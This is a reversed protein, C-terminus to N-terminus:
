SLGNPTAVTVTVMKYILLSLCLSTLYSEWPSVTFNYYHPLDWSRLKKKKINLRLSVQESAEKVRMLLSKLEEEKEAMLTIDDM